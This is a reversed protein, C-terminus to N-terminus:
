LFTLLTELMDRTDKQEPEAETLGDIQEVSATLILIVLSLSLHFTFYFRVSYVFIGFKVKCHKEYSLYTRTGTPWCRYLRRRQAM